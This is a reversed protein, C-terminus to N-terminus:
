EEWLVVDKKTGFILGSVILLVAVVVLIIDKRKM